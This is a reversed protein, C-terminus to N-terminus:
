DFEVVGTTFHLFATVIMVDNNDVAQRLIDSQEVLRNASLVANRRVVVNSDDSGEVAPQIYGTLRNLNPGLDGGKITAAVAGCSEHGMVVVLKTGLTAVAFEISAISSVNAVNGAVRVVFLDGLRTDFIIEPPARSDSCCLLIAFPWQGKLLEQHRSGVLGPGKALANSFRENGEQLRELAAQASILKEM